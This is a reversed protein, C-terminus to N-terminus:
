ACSASPVAGGGVGVAANEERRRHRCVHVKPSNGNERRFPSKEGPITQLDLVLKGPPVERVDVAVALDERSRVAAAGVM